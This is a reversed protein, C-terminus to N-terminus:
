LFHIIDYTGGHKAHNRIELVRNLAFILIHVEYTCITDYSVDYEYLCKLGASGFSFIDAIECKEFRYWIGRAHIYWTINKRVRMEERYGGGHTDM